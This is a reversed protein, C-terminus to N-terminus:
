DCSSGRGLSQHHLRGATCAAFVQDNPEHQDASHAADIDGGGLPNVYAEAQLVNGSPLANSSDATEAISAPGGASSVAGGSVTPTDASSVAEGSVTPTGSPGHPLGSSCLLGAVM